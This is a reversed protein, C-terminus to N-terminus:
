RRRPSVCEVLGPLHPIAGIRRRETATQAFMRLLENVIEDTKPRIAKLVDQMSLPEKAGGGRRSKGARGCFLDPWRSTVNSRTSITKIKRGAPIATAARFGSVRSSSGFDPRAIDAHNEYREDLTKRIAREHWWQTVPVLIRLVEDFHLRAAVIGQLYAINAAKSRKGQKGNGALM